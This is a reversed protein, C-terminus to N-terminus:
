GNHLKKARESRGKKSKSHSIYIKAAKEKAAPLDNGKKVFYDRIAEYERPM